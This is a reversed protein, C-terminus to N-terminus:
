MGWERRVPPEPPEEHAPETEVTEVLEEAPAVRAPLAGFRAHRLRDLEEDTLRETHERDEGVRSRGM